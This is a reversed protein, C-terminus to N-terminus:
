CPIMKFIGKNQKNTKVHHQPHFGTGREVVSGWGAGSWGKHLSGTKLAAKGGGQEIYLQVGAGWQVARWPGQQGGYHQARLLHEPFLLQSDAAM